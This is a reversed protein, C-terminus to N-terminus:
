YVYRLVVLGSGGNGGTFATTTDTKGANGGSGTNATASSGNTNLATPVGTGFSEPGGATTASGHGGSCLNRGWITIGFGGFSAGGGGGAGGYGTIGVTTASAGYGSVSGGQLLGGVSGSPSQGMGGGGGTGSSNSSSGGGGGSAGSIGTTNASAGGGGGGGGAASLYTTTSTNGVITAASGSSGKGGATGGAGGAPVTINLTTDGSIVFFKEIAQGAGGGGGANNATATSSAGGGGGSGVCLAWIGTVGTPITYSANSSTFVTETLNRVGVALKGVTVAGDLIKNSTVAGDTIGASAVQGWEPATVGSNVKLVHGATGIGLQTFTSAGQYVIGGQAAYTSTLENAENADTATFVPYVTSGGAITSRAATDDAGRGEDDASLSNNTPDVVTLISGSLTVCMKEEQATGPAVVVFFKGAPWNSPSTTLGIATQITSSVGASDLVASAAAGKYTRRIKVAM